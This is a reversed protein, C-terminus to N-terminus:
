KLEKYKFHFEVTYGAQPKVILIKKGDSDVLVLDSGIGAIKAKGGSPVDYVKTKKEYTDSEMIMKVSELVKEVKKKFFM